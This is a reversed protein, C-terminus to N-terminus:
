GSALWCWRDAERETERNSKMIWRLGTWKPHMFVSCGSLQMSLAAESRVDASGLSVSFLTHSYTSFLCLLISPSIVTVVTPLVNALQLQSLLFSCPLQLRHRPASVGAGFMVLREASQVIWPASVPLLLRKWLVSSPVSRWCNLEIWNLQYLYIQWVNIWTTVFCSLMMCTRAGLSYVLPLAGSNQVVLFCTLYSPRCLSMYWYSSM